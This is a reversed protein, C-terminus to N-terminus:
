REVIRCAHEKSSEAVNDIAHVAVDAWRSLRRQVLWPVFGSLNMKLQQLRSDSDSGSDSDADSDAESDSKGHGAADVGSRRRSHGPGTFEDTVCYSGCAVRASTGALKYAKSMKFQTQKCRPCVVKVACVDLKLIDEALTEM